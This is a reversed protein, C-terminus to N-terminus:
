PRSAWSLRVPNEKVRFPNQTSSILTFRDDVPDYYAIAARPEMTNATARPYHLSLKTVHAAAAFQKEVAARDGVEIQFSLNGDAEDWVQPAGPKLADALMVARLPEYDVVLLEAADKAQALTEAVVVAVRDGVYRVKDVALIPQPPIFFRMGPPTVRPFQQCPLGGIKEKAVDEGTLVALCAPRQSRPPKTSAAFGRMRM